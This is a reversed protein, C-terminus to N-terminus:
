DSTLTIPMFGHNPGCLESCQGYYTGPQMIFLGCQNIRGPVADMKLALSPIAFSHLVDRSSVLIRMPQNIPVTIHDDVELLRKEGCWLQMDDLYFSDINMVRDGWPFDHTEYAWYWQNGIVKISFLADGLFELNYLLIFSPIAINIILFTPGMTWYFELRPYHTIKSFKLIQDRIEISNFKNYAGIVFFVLIWILIGTTNFFVVILNEMLFDHFEIIGVMLHNGPEQFSILMSVTM